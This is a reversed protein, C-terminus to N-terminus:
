DHGGNRLSGFSVTSWDLIAKEAKGNNDCVSVVKARTREKAGAGCATPCDRDSSLHSFDAGAGYGVTFDDKADYQTLNRGTETM